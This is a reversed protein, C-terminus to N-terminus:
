DSPRVMKQKNNETIDTNYTWSAETYANWVVEATRNYEDLLKKAEVEETNKGIDEPYGEPIPPVWKFDPWGLTENVNQVKLWQIVPDFYKMLSNADM